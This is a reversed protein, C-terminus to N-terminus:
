GEGGGGGRFEKASAQFAISFGGLLIIYRSGKGHQQTDTPVLAIAQFVPPLICFEGTNLPCSRLQKYMPHFTLKTISITTQTVIIQM